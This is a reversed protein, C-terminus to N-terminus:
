EANKNTYEKRCEKILIKGLPVLISSLVIIGFIPIIFPARAKDLSNIWNVLMGMYSTSNENVFFYWVIHGLIFLIIFTLLIIKNRKRRCFDKKKYTEIEDDKKNSEALITEVESNKESLITTLKDIENSHENKTAELEAQTKKLQNHVNNIINTNATITNELSENKKKEEELQSQLLREASKKAIQKIQVNSLANTGNKFDNEVITRLLFSQQEVDTTVESIGQLIYHIQEESMVDFGTKINLFCVFSKFDDNTREMYRLIISLWQSPMIVVPVNKSHYHGDWFRLGSDSSLLYYKADFISKDSSKRISEVWKVNQADYYATEFTKKDSLRKISAANGNLEDKCENIVFPQNDDIEINYSKCINYFESELFNAFYDVTGNSRHGRWVHFYRWIDDMTVYESFVSSHIAPTESKRLKKIYGKVSNEFEELTCKTLKIKNNLSKFKSLFLLTRKKRDEGNIGIARYLINTDLYFTKNRLSDLSIHSSKNATLMCYELAYCALNFIEINKEDNDWDLFGNIIIAEESVVSQNCTEVTVKKTQLLRKFSDVNNTFMNYLYQMICGGKEEDLKNDQLYQHIFEELTTKQKISLITRRKTTLQYVNEGGADQIEFENNFNKDTFITMIEEPSFLLSYNNNIYEALTGISVFKGSLKYLADQIVKRHIQRPSVDYNNGAYIVAAVRFVNQQFM